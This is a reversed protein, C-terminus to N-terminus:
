LLTVIVDIMGQLTEAHRMIFITKEENIGDVPVGYCLPAATNDDVYLSIMCMPIDPTEPQGQLPVHLEHTDLLDIDERSIQEYIFDLSLYNWPSVRVAWRVLYAIHAYM